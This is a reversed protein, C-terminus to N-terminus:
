PERPPYAALKAPKLRARPEVYRSVGRFLRPQDLVSRRFPRTHTVCASLPKSAGYHRRNGAALIGHMALGYPEAPNLPGPLPRSLTRPLTDPPLPFSVAPFVVPAEGSATLSVLERCLRICLPSAPRHRKCRIIRAFNPHYIPKRALLAFSTVPARREPSTARYSRRFRSVQYRIDAKYGVTWTRTAPSLKSPFVYCRSAPLTAKYHPVTWEFM